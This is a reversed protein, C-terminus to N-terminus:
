RGPAAGVIGKEILSKVAQRLASFAESKLRIFYGHSHIGMACEIEAAPLCRVLDYYIFERHRPSLRQLAQRFLENVREPCYIQHDFLDTQGEVLSLVAGADEGALEVLYRTTENRAIRHFWGSLHRVSSGGNKDLFELASLLSRQLVEQAHDVSPLRKSKLRARTTKFVNSGLHDPVVRFYPSFAACVLEDALQALDTTM